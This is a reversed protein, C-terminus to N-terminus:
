APPPVVVAEIEVRFRPDALSSVVVLTNAPPPDAFADNRARGVAERDELSTLFVTTKVVDDMSAGAAAVVRRLNELVQQAQAEAGGDVLTGSEDVPVQGAVYIAADPAVVAHSYYAAPPAVDNVRVAKRVM